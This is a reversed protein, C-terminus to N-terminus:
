YLKGSKKYPDVLALIRKTMVPHSSVLNYCFVFFGGVNVANQVYDIKDVQKYLHIGAILTMMADVGDSGSLLQALRDCSYERARSATPGIIPIAQSFMMGYYYHMTAHKLYIHSMEHAIIFRITAMDHHERYAVELLDAYIEIYQRFPIFSSFANLIGNGQVMYIKPVRKMGLKQAYEEVIAYIEPYTKETIRVSMSRYQAYAYSVIFPIAIITFIIVILYEINEPMDNVKEELIERESKEDDDTQEESSQDDGGENEEMTESVISAYYDAVNDYYKQNEDTSYIFYAVCFVIVLINIVFLRRYWRKEAKHRCQKIIRKDIKQYVPRGNQPMDPQMQPQTAYQPPMQPQTAYQPPMQPQTAYQPPMQPQTAYQPPMNQAQVPEQSAGSPTPTPTTQQSAEIPNYNNNMKVIRRRLKIKSGNIKKIKKHM